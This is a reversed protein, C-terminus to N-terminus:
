GAALRAPDDEAEESLWAYGPTALRERLLQDVAIDAECVPSSKGKIWQKVPGRFTKLALDGAERVAATLRVALESTPRSPEADPM